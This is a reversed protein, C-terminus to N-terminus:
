VAGVKGALLARAHEDHDGAGAACPNGDSYTYSCRAQADKNPWRIESGACGSTSLHEDHPGVIACPVPGGVGEPTAGCPAKAADYSAVAHVIAWCCWLFFTTPQRLDWEWTDYFKFGYEQGTEVDPAGLAERMVSPAAQKGSAKFSFGELLEHALADNAPPTNGYEDELVQDKIVARLKDAVDSPWGADALFEAVHENVLQTFYDGDYEKAVQNGSHNGGQLKEGWYGPNIRTLGRGDRFFGLMDETRRFTWTGMDGTLTLHGPWTIVDFWYFSSDPQAFHLHRYLGDDHLVTMQHNATDRDFREKAALERDKQTTM